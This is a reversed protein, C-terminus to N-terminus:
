GRWEEKGWRRESGSRGGSDHRRHCVFDNKAARGEELWIGDERGWGERQCHHIAAKVRKDGKCIERGMRKVVRMWVCHSWGEKEGNEEFESEEMGSKRREDCLQSWKIGDQVRGEEM